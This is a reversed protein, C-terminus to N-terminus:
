GPGGSRLSESPAGRPPGGHPGGDMEAVGPEGSVAGAPRGAIDGCGNVICECTMNAHCGSYRCPTRPARDLTPLVDHPTGASSQSIYCRQVLEKVAIAHALAPSYLDKQKKGRGVVVLNVQMFSCPLGGAATRCPRTRAADSAVLGPWALCSSCQDYLAMGRLFLHPDWHLNGAALVVRATLHSIAEISNHADVIPNEKTMTFTQSCSVQSLSGVAGRIAPPATEAIYRPTFLTIAGAAIGTIFRGASVRVNMAPHSKDPVATAVVDLKFPLHVVCLGLDCIGFASAISCLPCRLHTSHQLRVLFYVWSVVLHCLQCSLDWASCSTTSHWAPRPGWQM